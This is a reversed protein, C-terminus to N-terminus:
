ARNRLALQDMLARLAAGRHSVRQKEQVSLEAAM